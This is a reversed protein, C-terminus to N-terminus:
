KLVKEYTGDLNRRVTYKDSNYWTDVLLQWYDPDVANLFNLLDGNSLNKTKSDFTNVNDYYKRYEEPTVFVQPLAKHLDAYDRYDGRKGGSLTM